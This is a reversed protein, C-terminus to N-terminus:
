QTPKRRYIEIFAKNMNHHLCKFHLRGCLQDMSKSRM